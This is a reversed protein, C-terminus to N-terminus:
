NFIEWVEATLSGVDRNAKGDSLVIVVNNSGSRTGSAAILQEQCTKRLGDSLNTEGLFICIFTTYHPVPSAFITCTPPPTNVEMPTVDAHLIM